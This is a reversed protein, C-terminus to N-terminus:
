GNRILFRSHDIVGPLGQFIAVFGFLRRTRKADPELAACHLIGPSKSCICFCCCPVFKEFYKRLLILDIDKDVAGIIESKTLINSM